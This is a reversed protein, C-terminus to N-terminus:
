AVPTVIRLFAGKDLARILVKTGDPSFIPNFVQDFDEAYPKGDIIITQRGQKEVKVAVHDGKPSIVPTWAMDWIGNWVRDNVMVQWDANFQNGLAAVCAGDNSVVLDTVVTFRPAWVKANVAVSFKGFDPAVIAAITQGNTSIAQHWCQHFIPDWIMQADQALGWRGGVRVPAVVKGTVPNFRPEWVCAFNKPWLKGDVAISYEYLNLRVQAAVHKASQDFVPTWANVYVSDWAEGAVAVSFVGSQFSEIDAPKLSKVQAVGATSSGDAALTTHNLNEFMTEWATGEVCMGYEGDGQICTAIVSGDTSFKTGWMYDYSEEWVADDVALTWMEDQKVIATFRGDPSYKALWAKEFRSEWMEGNALVSFEEEGLNILRSLTEGDPSAHPEEQWLLDEPLDTSALIVRKGPEWNWSASSHM